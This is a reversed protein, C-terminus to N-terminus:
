LLFSGQWVTVHWFMERSFIRSDACSLNKNLHSFVVVCRDAKKELTCPWTQITKCTGVRECVNCTELHSFALSNALPLNELLLCLTCPASGQLAPCGPWHTPFSAHQRILFKFTVLALNAPALGTNLFYRPEHGSDQLMNPFFFTPPSSLGSPFQFSSTCLCWSTMIVCPYCVCPSALRRTVPIRKEINTPALTPFSCPFAQTLSLDVEWMGAGQRGADSQRLIHFKLESRWGQPWVSHLYAARHDGSALLAVLSLQSCFFPLLSLPVSFCSLTECEQAHRQTKHFPSPHSIWGDARLALIATLDLALFIELFM